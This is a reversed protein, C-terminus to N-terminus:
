KIRDSKSNLETSLTAALVIAVIILCAAVSLLIATRRKLGCILKPGNEYEPADQRNGDILYEDHRHVEKDDGRAISSSSHLGTDPIIVEPATFPVAVQLGERDKAQSAMTFSSAICVLAGRNFSISHTLFNAHGFSYAVCIGM